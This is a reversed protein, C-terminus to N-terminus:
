HTNHAVFGYPLILMSYRAILAFIPGVSAIACTRSYQKDTFLGALGRFTKGLITWLGRIPMDSFGLTICVAPRTYLFDTIICVGPRTCIRVRVRIRVKAM